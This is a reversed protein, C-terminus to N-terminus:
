DFLQDLVIETNNLFVVWPDSELAESLKHTDWKSTSLLFDAIHNDVFSYVGLDITKLANNYEKV